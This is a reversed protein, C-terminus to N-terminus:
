TSRQVNRLAAEAQVGRLEHALVDCMTEKIVVDPQRDAVAGVLREESSRLTEADAEGSKKEGHDSVGHEIFVRGLLRDALRDDADSGEGNSSRM